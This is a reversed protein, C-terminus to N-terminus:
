EDVEAGVPRAILCGTGVIPDLRRCNGARRRGPRLRRRRGARRGPGRRGCPSRRASRSGFSGPAPSPRRPPCRDTVKGDGIEPPILMAASWVSAEPVESSVSAVVDAGAGFSSPPVPPVLSFVLSTLFLFLPLAFPFFSLVGGWVVIVLPRGPRVWLRVTLNLNTELSAPDVKWHLSSRLGNLPHRDGFFSVRRFGPLCTKLTRAISGAPLTSGVGATFRNLTRLYAHAPEGRDRRDRGRQRQRRQRRRCRRFRVHHVFRGVGGVGGRVFDAVGHGPPASCHVSRAAISFHIWEVPRTSRIPNPGLKLPSTASVIVSPAPRGGIVSGAIMLPLLQTVDTAATLGHTPTAPGELAAASVMSSASLTDMLPRDTVPPCNPTSTMSLECANVAVLSQIPTFEVAAGGPVGCGPNEDVRILPAAM